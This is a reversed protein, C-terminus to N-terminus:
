LITISFNVHCKFFSFFFLSSIPHIGLVHSGAALIVAWVAQSSTHSGKFHRPLLKNLHTPWPASTLQLLCSPEALSDGRAGVRKLVNLKNM